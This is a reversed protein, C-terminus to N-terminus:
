CFEIMETIHLRASAVSILGQLGRCDYLWEMQTFTIFLEILQLHEPGTSISGLLSQTSILAYAFLQSAQLMM